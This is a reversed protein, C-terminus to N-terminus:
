SSIMPSGSQRGHARIGVTDTLPMAGSPTTLPVTGRLAVAFGFSGGAALNSSKTSPRRWAAQGRPPLQLLPPGEHGDMEGWPCVVQLRDELGAAVGSVKVQTSCFAALAEPLPGVKEALAAAKDLAAKDTDVLWLTVDHQRLDENAMVDAVTGRGFSASGAGILVINASAM